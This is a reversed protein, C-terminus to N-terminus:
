QQMKNFVKDQRKQPVVAYHLETYALQLFTSELFLLVNNFDFKVHQAPRHCIM